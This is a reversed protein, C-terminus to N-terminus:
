LIEARVQSVDYSKYAGSSALENIFETAVQSLKPTDMLVNTEVEFLSSQLWANWSGLLLFRQDIVAVKAHVHGKAEPTCISMVLEGGAQVVPLVSELFAANIWFLDNTERSNGM